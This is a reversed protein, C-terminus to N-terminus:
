GFASPSPEGLIVEPGPQVSNLMVALEDLAKLADNLAGSVNDVTATAFEDAFSYDRLIELAREMSRVSEENKQINGRATSEHWDLVKALMNDEGKAKRRVRDRLRATRAIARELSSIGAKRQEIDDRVAQEILAAIDMSTVDQEAHIIL